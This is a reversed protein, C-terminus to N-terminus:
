ACSAGAENDYQPVIVLPDASAPTNTEMQAPASIGTLYSVITEGVRAPSATTVPSFDSAHQFVGSRDSNTFFDGPSTRFEPSNGLAFSPAQILIDPSPGWHSGSRQNAPLSRLKRGRSEMVCAIRRNLNSRRPLDTKNFGFRTSYMGPMSTFVLGQRSNTKTDFKRLGRTFARTTEIDDKSLNPRWSGEDRGMTHM